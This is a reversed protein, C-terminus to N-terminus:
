KVKAVLKTDTTCLFLRTKPDLLNDPLQSEKTVLKLDSMSPEGNVTIDVAVHCLM